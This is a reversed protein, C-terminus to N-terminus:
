TEDQKFCDKRHHSRKIKTNRQEETHQYQFKVTANKKMMVEPFLYYM